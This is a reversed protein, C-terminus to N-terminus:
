YPALRPPLPDATFAIRDCLRKLLDLKVGEYAPEAWCNHTEGPDARLDYLEGPEVGHAAVIKYHETRLM